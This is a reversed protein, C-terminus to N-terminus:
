SIELLVSLSSATLIPKQPNKASLPEICVFSAGPPHWLQWGNEENRCEYRVKLDFEDTALLVEARCPDPFPYFTADVSQNLDFILEHSEQFGFSEPVSAEKGEVLMKNKVRSSVVGKKGPLRFYYHFGIVSDSESVVAYDLKLGKESLMATFTLSFAQGEIRSLPIGEWEMKGDLSATLTNEKQEWKWPVYRAIGHSFPDIRGTQRALEFLPHNQLEPLAPLRASPRQHFHPGILPGLGGRRKEFLVKTEPDIVEVGHRKFSALTMGEEPLFLAEYGSDHKLTVM